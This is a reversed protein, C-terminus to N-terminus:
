SIDKRPSFVCAVAVLPWVTCALIGIINYVTGTAANNRQERLTMYTAGLISSMYLIVFFVWLAM